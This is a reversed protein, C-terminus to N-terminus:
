RRRRWAYALLGALGGAMLSLAGPEPATVTQALFQVSSGITVPTFIQGSPNTCGPYITANDTYYCAGYLKSVGSKLQYQWRPTFTTMDGAAGNANVNAGTQVTFTAVLVEQANSSVQVSQADFTGGIYGPTLQIYSLWGATTATSGTNGGWGKVNDAFSLYTNQAGLSSGTGAAMFHSGIGSGTVGVSTSNGPNYIAGAGAKGPDVSVYGFVWSDNTLTTDGVIEAWLQLTYSTNPAVTKATTGDDFRLNYIFDARALVAGGLVIAVGLMLSLLRLTAKMKM